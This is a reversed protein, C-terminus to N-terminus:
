AYHGTDSAQTLYFSQINVGQQIFKNAQYSVCYQYINTKIEVPLLKQSTATFLHIRLVTHCLVKKNESSM